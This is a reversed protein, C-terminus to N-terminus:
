QLIKEGRQKSSENYRSVQSSGVFSTDTNPQSKPPLVHYHLLRCEQGGVTIPWKKDARMHLAKTVSSNGSLVYVDSCSCHSKLFKGLAQWTTGLWELEESDSSDTLRSGWPPNTVVLSPIAPPSYVRCDQCSLELLDLVGASAADRACLSLAGEHIDNGLLQVRSSLPVRAAGADEKCKKWAREDFDHWTQFPWQSRMSGPATKTAMLAAEILFTGSGCMPDLLVGGEATFGPNQNAGGFGLVAPNWGAITLVAAAIGENLSARHMVDRYGRKHLSVGSMDRYLVASDRYLSLFLPVDATAGGEAPPEPRLGGCRDRMADCIADKARISAYNSNSVDTCNWVRSQVAFNRFRWARRRGSSAEQSGQLALPSDKVLLSPWDAADRVFEYVPDFRGGRSSRSGRLPAAALEVLVRVASRLWLNARFGTSLTGVFSVGAAGAEARQAQILPSQLEALVVEELGPSCTAYFRHLSSSSSDPSSSFSSSSERRDEGIPRWKGSSRNDYSSARKQLDRRGEEEDDGGGRSSSSACCRLIVKRQAVVPLVRVQL